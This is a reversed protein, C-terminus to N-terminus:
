DKKGKEGKEGRASFSISIKRGAGTSGVSSDRSAIGKKSGISPSRKKTSRLLREMGDDEAEEERRRKESLRDPTPPLSANSTVPSGTMIHDGGNNEEVAPATATATTTSEATTTTAKADDVAPNTEATANGTSSATTSAAAAKKTGGEEVDMADDEDDPYDVLSKISPAPSSAVTAGTPSPAGVTGAGMGVPTKGGTKIRKQSNEVASYELEDEDDSGNFYEEENADLDKLGDWRKGGNMAHRPTVEDDTAYPVSADHMQDYKLIISSFTDVYTIEQLRERYNEVLHIILIKM